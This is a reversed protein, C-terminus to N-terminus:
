DGESAPWLAAIPRSLAMVAEDGILGQHQAEALAQMVKPRLGQAASERFAAM